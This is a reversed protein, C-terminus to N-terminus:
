KSKHTHKFIMKTFYVMNYNKTQIRTKKETWKLVYLLEQYKPDIQLWFSLDTSITQNENMDTKWTMGFYM